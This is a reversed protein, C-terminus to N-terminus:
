RRMSWVLPNPSNQMSEFSDRDVLGRWGEAIGIQAVISGLSNGPGPLYLLDPAFERLATFVSASFDYTETVQAGLTYNRLAAPDAVFPTHTHGTGDILPTAPARWDLPGLQAAAKDAVGALLPTHYPGHQALRIPYRGKGLEAPPLHFDDLAEDTGAIVAFGGLKISVFVGEEECYLVQGFRDDDLRWDEGVIPYLVQGGAPAEMQLQAMEQVLRFGDDFSLAGAVTLATYWGMSNGAVAVIEHEAAAREADLLSHLWILPSVHDPRLQVAADWPADRDLSVLSPLGRAARLEDARRVLPHNPDLAGRTQKTYSGRGPCILVIRSM